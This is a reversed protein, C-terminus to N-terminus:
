YQLLKIEKHHQSQKVCSDPFGGWSGPIGEFVDLVRTFLCVLSDKWLNYAINDGQIQVNELWRTGVQGMVALLIPKEVISSVVEGPEGCPDLLVVIVIGALRRGHSAQRLRFLRHSNLSPSKLQTRQLNWRCGHRKLSFGWGRLFRLTSWCFWLSWRASKSLSSLESLVMTWPGTLSSFCPDLVILCSWSM